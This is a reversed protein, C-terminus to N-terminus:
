NMWKVWPLRWSLPTPPRPLLIAQVGFAVAVTAAQMAPADNIGDGLFLTPAQTAEKRSHFDSAPVTNGCSSCGPLPPIRREGGLRNGCAIVGRTYVM